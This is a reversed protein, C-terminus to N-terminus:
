FSEVRWSCSQALKENSVSATATNEVTCDSDLEVAALSRWCEQSIRHPCDSGKGIFVATVNENTFDRHESDEWILLKLLVIVTWNLQM